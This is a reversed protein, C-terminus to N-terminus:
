EYTLVRRIWRNKGDSARNLTVRSPRNPFLREGHALQLERDSRDYLGLELEDVGLEDRAGFRDRPGRAERGEGGGRRGDRGREGRAVQEALGLPDGGPRCARARAPLVPRDETGEPIPQGALEAAAIAHDGDRFTIV